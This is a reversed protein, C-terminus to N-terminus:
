SKPTWPRKRFRDRAPGCAMAELLIIRIRRCLVPVCITCRIEIAIPPAATRLVRLRVQHRSSSKATQSDPSSGLVSSRPAGADRLEGKSWSIDTVTTGEMLGSAHGAYIVAATGPPNNIARTDSNLRNRGDEEKEV